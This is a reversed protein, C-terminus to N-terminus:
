RLPSQYPARTLPEPLPGKKALTLPEPLPGKKALTLPEPWDTLVNKYYTWKKEISTIDNRAEKLQGLYKIRGYLVRMNLAKQPEFGKWCAKTQGM